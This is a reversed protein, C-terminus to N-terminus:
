NKVNSGQAKNAPKSVTQRANRSIKKKLDETLERAKDLQEQTMMERIMDRAKEAEKNGQVAALNLWLFAESYDQKVNQGTSYMLGLNLQAGADGNEAAMKYWKVAETASKPVGQGASYMVGLNFQANVSGQEAAKKYWRAAEAYDQKVGQGNSYMYGLYCQAKADGKIALPQIEKLAADYDGSNLSKIYDAFAPVSCAILFFAVFIVIKKM